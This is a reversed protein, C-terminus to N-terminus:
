KQKTGCYKCFVFDQTIPKGCHKCYNNVSCMRKHPIISTAETSDIEIPDINTKNLIEKPTKETKYHLKRYKYVFLAIFLLSLGFSTGYM